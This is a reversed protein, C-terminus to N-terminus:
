GPAFSKQLALIFKGALYPMLATKGSAKVPKPSDVSRGPMEPPLEVRSGDSIEPKGMPALGQM